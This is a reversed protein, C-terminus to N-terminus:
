AIRPGASNHEAVTMLAFDSARQRLRAVATLILNRRHRLEASQGPGGTALHDACGETDLGFRPRVVRELRRAVAAAAQGSWAVTTM